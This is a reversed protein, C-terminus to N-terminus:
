TMRFHVSGYYYRCKVSNYTLVYETGSDCIFDGAGDPYLPNLM